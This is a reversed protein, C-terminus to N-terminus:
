ELNFSLWGKKQCESRFDQGSRLRIPRPIETKLFVLRVAGHFGTKQLFEDLSEPADPRLLHLIIKQAQRLLFTEELCNEIGDLFADNDGVRFAPNRIQVICSAFS